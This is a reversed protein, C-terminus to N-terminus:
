QPQGAHGHVSRAGDVQSAGGFLDHALADFGVSQAREAQSYQDTYASGTLTVIALLMAVVATLGKECRMM